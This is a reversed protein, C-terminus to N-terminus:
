ESFFCFCVFRQKSRKKSGITHFFTVSGRPDDIALNLHISEKALDRVKLRFLDKTVGQKRDKLM